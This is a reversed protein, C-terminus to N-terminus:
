SSTGKDITPYIEEDNKSLYFVLEPRSKQVENAKGLQKM